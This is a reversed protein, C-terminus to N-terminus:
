RLVWQHPHIVYGSSYAKREKRPHRLTVELNPLWLRQTLGMLPNPFVDKDEQPPKFRFSGSFTLSGREARKSRVGQVHEGVGKHTLAVKWMGWITLPVGHTLRGQARGSPWPHSEPKQKLVTM